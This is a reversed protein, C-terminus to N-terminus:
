SCVEQIQQFVRYHRRANALDKVLDPWQWWVWVGGFFDLMNLHAALDWSALHLDDALPDPGHYERLGDEIKDLLRSLLRRV